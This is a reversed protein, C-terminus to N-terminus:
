LGLGLNLAHHPPTLGKSGDCGCQGGMLRGLANSDKLCRRTTSQRWDLRRPQIDTTCAPIHLEKVVQM